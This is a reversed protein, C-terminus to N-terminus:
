PLLAKIANFLHTLLEGFSNYLSEPFRAVVERFKDEVIALTSAMASTLLTRAIALLLGVM